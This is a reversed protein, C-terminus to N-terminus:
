IGCFSYVTVGRDVLEQIQDLIWTDECDLNTNQVNVIDGAGISESQVLDYLDTIATGTLDLSELNSMLSLNPVLALNTWRLSLRELRVLGILESMDDLPSEEVALSTLGTFCRLGSLDSIPGNITRHEFYSISKVDEYYIPGSPKDTYFRVDALLSMDPFSIASGCGDPPTVTVTVPSSEIGKQSASVLSTGDNEGFLSGEDDVSTVDPSSSQWAVSSSCVSSSGDSMVCTATLQRWTNVELLLAPSPTVEISTLIPETVALVVSASDVGELSAWVNTEGVLRGTAVGDNAIAAISADSTMWAVNSTCTISVDTYQCEATFAKMLGSPVRQLTNPTISIAVLQGDTVAFGRETSTTTMDPNPISVTITTAGVEQAELVGAQAVSAVTEASSEWDVVATVDVGSRGDDYDCSAAWRVSTGAAASTPGTVNLQTCIPGLDVVLREPPSVVGAVAATVTTVGNTIPTFVGESLSVVGPTAISIVAEEPCPGIADDDFTCQVEFTASDELSLLTTTSLALRVSELKPADNAIPENAEGVDTVLGDDTGAGADSQPREESGEGGSAEPSGDQDTPAPEETSPGGGDVDTDNAGSAGSRTGQGPDGVMGFEPDTTGADADTAAGQELVEIDLQPEGGDPVEMGVGFDRDKSDCGMLTLVLSLAVLGLRLRQM